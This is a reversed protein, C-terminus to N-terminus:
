VILRTQKVHFKNEKEDNQHLVVRITGRSINRIELGTLLM